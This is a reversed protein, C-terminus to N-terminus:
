KVNKNHFIELNGWSDEKFQGILIDTQPQFYQTLTFYDSSKYHKWLKSYNLILILDVLTVYQFVINLEM